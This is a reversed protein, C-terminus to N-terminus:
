ESLRYQTLTDPEVGLLLALDIRAVVYNYKENLFNFRASDLQNQANQVELIERLGVRYGEDAVQLAKEALQVSLERAVLISEIKELTDIQSQVQIILNKYTEEQAILISQLQRNTNAINVWTQSFPLLPGLPVSLTFSLGGGISWKDNGFADSDSFLNGIEDNYAPSVTYGLILSPIFQAVYSSLASKTIGESVALSRLDLNLDPLHAILQARNLPYIDPAIEGVLEVNDAPTEIPVGIALNFRRRANDFLSELEAIQPKANEASVQASLLTYEDILGASYRVRTQSLREVALRLSEKAIAINQRLLILNYFAKRTNGVLQQRAQEFTIQGSRYNLSAQEIGVIQSASIALQLEISTSLTDRPILPSTTEENLFSTTARASATPYFLNFSTDSSLRLSDLDLAERKLSLNNLLSYRIADEETFRLIEATEGAALLPDATPRQEQTEQADLPTGISSLVLLICGVFAGWRFDLTGRNYPTYINTNMIRFITEIHYM